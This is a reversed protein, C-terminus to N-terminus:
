EVTVNEKTSEEGKWGSILRLGHVIEVQKECNEFGTCKGM